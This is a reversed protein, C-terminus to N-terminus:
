ALSYWVIVRSERAPASVVAQCSSQTTPQLIVTAIPTYITSTGSISDWQLYPINTAQYSRGPTHQYSALHTRPIDQDTRAHELPIPTGLTRSESSERPERPIPHWTPVVGTGRVARGVVTSTIATYHWSTTYGSSYLIAYVIYHYSLEISRRFIVNQNRRSISLLQHTRDPSRISQAPISSPRRTTQSPIRRSCRTISPNLEM